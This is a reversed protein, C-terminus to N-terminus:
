SEEKPPNVNYDSIVVGKKETGRAHAPIWFDGHIGRGFLGPGTEPYHAFHGRCIHLARELGHLEIGGERRLITKLGEIQLTHYKLMPPKGRELNRKALKPPPAHEIRTVNKCHMFMLSLLYPSVFSAADREWQEQSIGSVTPIPIELRSDKIRGDEKLTYFGGGRQLVWEDDHETDTWYFTMSIRWPSQGEQLHAGHLLAGHRYEMWFEPLPPAIVGVPMLPGHTKGPKPALYEAVNDAVIVPLRTLRAGINEVTRRMMDLVPTTQLKEILRQSM